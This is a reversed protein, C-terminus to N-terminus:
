EVSKRINEARTVVVLSRGNTQPGQGVLWLENAPFVPWRDATVALKPFDAQLAGAHTLGRLKELREMRRELTDLDAEARQAVAPDRSKRLRVLLNRLEVNWRALAAPSALDQEIRALVDPGRAGAGILVDAPFVQWLPQPKPSDDAASSPLNLLEMYVDFAEQEHGEWRKLMDALVILLYAAGMPNNPKQIEIERRLREAAEGPKGFRYALTWMDEKLKALDRDARRYPEPDLEDSEWPLVLKGGEAIAVLVVSPDTYGDASDTATIEQAKIQNLRDRIETGIDVANAARRTEAQKQDLASQQVIVQWGLWAIAVGPMVIVVLLGLLQRYRKREM